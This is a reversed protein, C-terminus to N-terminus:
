VRTLKLRALGYGFRPNKWTLGIVRGRRRSFEMTGRQDTFWATGSPDGPYYTFSQRGGIHSAQFPWLRRLGPELRPGVATLWWRGPKLRFRSRVEDSDYEGSLARLRRPSVRGPLLVVILDKLPHGRKVEFMGAPRGAPSMRFWLESDSHAGIGVFGHRKVPALAMTGWPATVRLRGGAATVAWRDDKEKVPRYVGEYARLDAERTRIIDLSRKPNVAGAPPNALPIARKPQITVVSNVRDLIPQLDFADDNSFLLFTLRSTRVRALTSRYGPIAGAHAVFPGDKWPALVLGCAYTALKKGMSLDVLKGNRLRGPRHMGRLIAPGGIRGHRFNDDWKVLDPATTFIEGAGVCGRGGIGGDPHAILRGNPTRSYGVSQFPVNSRRRNRVFTHTMGLPRFIRRAAFEPYPIGTLREIILALLLYGTNCYRWATGTPEQLERQAAMWELVEARDDGLPFRGAAAFLQDFSRLGSTHHMLHHIRIPTGYKPLEPVYKRADDNLRLRREKALLLICFATFQKSVSAIHHVTRASWPARRAVDSLGYGKLFIMRGRQAVGVLVGPGGPNVAVKMHDDVAARLRARLSAGPPM